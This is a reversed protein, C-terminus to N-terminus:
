LHQKKFPYSMPRTPYHFSICITQSQPHGLQVKIYVERNRIIKGFVWMDSIHYLTDSLPGESYEDVKLKKLEQKVQTISFELDLITEMNKTNTRDTRVLLDWIDLKVNFDDIFQQVAERSAM